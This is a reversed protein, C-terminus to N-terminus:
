ENRTPPLLTLTLLDQVQRVNPIALFGRTTTTTGSGLPETFQEFILDGSGDPRERRELRTLRQATFSETTLTGFLSTRLTLARHNTIAYVTRRALRPIWYPSSLMGLGVLFFPLGCLSFLSFGTAVSGGIWGAFLMWVISFVTFPIGFAAILLSQLRAAHPLPQGTWLLRENPQLESRLRQDLDPPLLAPDPPPM